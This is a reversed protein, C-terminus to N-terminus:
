PQFSWTVPGSLSTGVSTTLRGYLFIYNPCDVCPPFFEQQDQYVVFVIVNDSLQALQPRQDNGSGDSSNIVAEIVLGDPKSVDYYGVIKGYPSNAELSHLQDTVVVHAIADPSGTNIVDAQLASFSLMKDPQSEDRDDRDDRDDATVASAVISRSIADIFNIAELKPFNYSNSQKSNTVNSGATNNDDNFYGAKAPKFQKARLLLRHYQGDNVAVVEVPSKASLQATLKTAGVVTTTTSTKDAVASQQNSNVVYINLKDEQRITLETMGASLAFLSDQGFDRQLKRAVTEIQYHPDLFRNTAIGNFVTATPLPSPTPPPLQSSPQPALLLNALITAKILKLSSVTSNNNDSYYLVVTGTQQGLRSFSFQQSSANYDIDSASKNIAVINSTVLQPVTFNATTVNLLWTRSQQENYYYDQWTGKKITQCSNADEDGELSVIESDDNNNDNNTAAEIDGSVSLNSNSNGRISIVAKIGRNLSTSNNNSGDYGLKSELNYILIHSELVVFNDYYRSTIVEQKVSLILEAQNNAFFLYQKGAADKVYRGNHYLKGDSALLWGSSCHITQNSADEAASYSGILYNAQTM